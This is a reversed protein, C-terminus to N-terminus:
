KHRYQRGHISNETNLLEKIHKLFHIFSFCTEFKNKFQYQLTFTIQFEGPFLNQVKPGYVYTIVNAKNHNHLNLDLELLIYAKLNHCFNLYWFQYVQISFKITHGIVLKHSTWFPDHISKSWIQLTNKARKLLREVIKQEKQSVM